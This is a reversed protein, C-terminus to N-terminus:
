TVKIDSNLEQNITSNHDEVLHDLIDKGQQFHHRLRLLPIHCRQYHENYQQIYIYREMDFPYNVLEPYVFKFKNVQVPRICKFGKKWNQTM